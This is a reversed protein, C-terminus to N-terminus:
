HEVYGPGATHTLWLAVGAYALLCVALGVFAPGYGAREAV